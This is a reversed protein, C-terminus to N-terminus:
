LYLQLKQSFYFANNRVDGQAKKRKREEREKKFGCLEKHADCTRTTKYDCLLLQHLWKQKM